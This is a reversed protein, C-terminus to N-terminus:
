RSYQLQGLKKGQQLITITTMNIAVTKPTGQQKLKIVRKPPIKLIKVLVLECITSQRLGGGLESDGASLTDNLKVM